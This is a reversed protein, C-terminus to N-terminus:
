DYGRGWATLFELTCLISESMMRAHFVRTHYGHVGQYVPLGLWYHKEPSDEVLPKGFLEAKHRGEPVPPLGPPPPM